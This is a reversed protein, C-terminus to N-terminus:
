GKKFIFFRGKGFGGFSLGKNAAAWTPTIVSLHKQLVFHAHFSFRLSHQQFQSLSDSPSAALPFQCIVM